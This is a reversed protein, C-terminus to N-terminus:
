FGTELYVEFIALSGNKYKTIDMNKENELYDTILFTDIGLDEASMDEIINNGAMICQAPKKNTKKLIERYYEANPKCYSSNAYHSIYIFDQPVLSIWELKTEVACAPFLPNTALIVDFGKAKLMDIIRKPTGDDPEIVSKLVNFENSYFKDCEYEVTKLHGSKIGTKFVFAEWFRDKNLMAGNNVIMAKTGAWLANITAEVDMSLRTFLKQLEKMYVSLFMEQSCKILTGDLDLMVTDIM